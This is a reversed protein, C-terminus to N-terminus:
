KLDLRMRWSYPFKLYYKRSLRKLLIVLIWITSYLLWPSLFIVYDAKPLSHEYWFYFIPQIFVFFIGVSILTHKTSNLKSFYALLFLILLIASTLILFSIVPEKRVSVVLNGNALIVCEPTRWFSGSLSVNRMGQMTVTIVNIQWPSIDLKIVASDVQGCQIETKIEKTGDIQLTSAHLTTALVVILSTLSVIRKM